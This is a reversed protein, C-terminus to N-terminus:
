FVGPFKAAVGPASGVPSGQVATQIQQSAAQTSQSGLNTSSAASSIVDESTQTKQVKLTSVIKLQSIDMEFDLTYGTDETRPFRLKKIVVNQFTQRKTVLTFPVKNQFAYLLITRSVADVSGAFANAAINGANGQLAAGLIGVGQSFGSSLLNSRAQSSSIAALGGAAINAIAVSLDLPTNSITGKLRIVPNLIQIHDSVEPGDEVPHETVEANYEVSEDKVVDLVALPVPIGNATNTQLLLTRGLIQGAGNVLSSPVSAM